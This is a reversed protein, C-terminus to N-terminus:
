EALENFLRCWQNAINDVGFSIVKNKAEESFRMRLEKDTMLIDLKELMGDVDLPPILFGNVNNDIIEKPGTPIDFSIMPLGKAAAEILVMPFGEYRSTMVIAAYQPYREYLDTVNGMLVVRGLLDRELILAELEERQEGDGYIHWEWDNHQTLIKEAIDVLLPYNKQYTLRGVSILKKSDTHYSVKTEFLRSDAPNYIVRNRRQRFHSEYYRKAEQSILVNMNSFCAGLMRSIGELAFENTCAPNTHEWCIVKAGAMKGGICALPFYIVGCAIIVDIQNRRLYKVLRIIGGQALAKKMNITDEFLYDKKLDFPLLYFDLPESKNLSLCCIDVKEKNILNRIVISLVREIGGHM